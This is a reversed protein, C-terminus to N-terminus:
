RAACLGAPLSTRCVNGSFTVGTGSGDWLIAQPKNSRMVNDVISSGDPNAGGAPAGSLVGIGASAVTPGTPRHGYITNHQLTTNQAGVIAIGIGSLPPSEASGPCAKNNHWVRNGRLVWGSTPVPSATDLLLAGACNGHANNDWAAGNESDRFLFGQLNNVVENSFVRAGSNPSDGIYIGAEGSGSAYNNAVTVNTSTNSFLGYSGNHMFRNHRYVSADAGYEFVGMGPFGAVVFGTIRTGHTQRLINGSADFVGVVCFGVPDSGQDCLNGPPVTAPQRLVTGNWDAGAGRITLDDKQIFLSERYVGAEVSITDGPSAADIAAQISGGRHVTWQAASAPSALALAGVIAAGCM